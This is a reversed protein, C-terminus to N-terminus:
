QPSQMALYVPDPRHARAGMLGGVAQGGVSGLMSGILQGQQGAQAREAERNTVLRRLFNKKKFDTEFKKEALMGGLISGIASGATGGAFQGGVAPMSGGFGMMPAASQQMPVIMPSGMQAGQAGYPNAAKEFPILASSQKTSPNYAGTRKMDKIAAYDEELADFLPTIKESVRSPASRVDSLLNDAQLRFADQTDPAYRSQGRLANMVDAGTEKAGDRLADGVGPSARFYGAALRGIADEPAGAEMGFRRIRNTGTLRTLFNEGARGVTRAAGVAGHALASAGRGLFKKLLDRLGANKEFLVLASGQKLAYDNGIRTGLGGGISSGIISGIASGGIMGQARAANDESKHRGFLRGTLHQVRGEQERKRNQLFQMLAEGGQSGLAGGAAGGAGRGIMSGAATLMGTRGPTPGTDQNYASVGAAASPMTIGGLPLAGLIAPDLAANKNMETRLNRTGHLSGLMGGLSGGLLMGGHTGMTKAKQIRDKDRRRTTRPFLFAGVSSWTLGRREQEIRRRAVEGMLARMGLGGGVSGM